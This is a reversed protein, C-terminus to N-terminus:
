GDITPTVTRTEISPQAANDRGRAGPLWDPM